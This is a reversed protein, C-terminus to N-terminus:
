MNEKSILNVQLEKKEQPKLGAQSAYPTSDHQFGRKNISLTKSKTPPEIKTSTTGSILKKQAFPHAENVNNILRTWAVYSMSIKKQESFFNYVAKKTYGQEIYSSAEKWIALFQSKCSQKLNTM